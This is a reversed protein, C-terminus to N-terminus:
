TFFPRGAPLQLKLLAGRGEKRLSVRVSAANVVLSSSCFAMNSWCHSSMAVCRLPTRIGVLYASHFVCDFTEYNAYFFRAPYQTSGNM